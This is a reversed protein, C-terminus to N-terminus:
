DPWIMLSNPAQQAKRQKKGKQKQRKLVRLLPFTKALVTRRLREDRIIPNERNEITIIREDTFVGVL